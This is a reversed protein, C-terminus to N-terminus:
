YFDWSSLQEFDMSFLWDLSFWSSLLFLIVWSFFFSRRIHSSNLHSKKLRYTSHPSLNTTSDYFIVSVLFYNQVVAVSCAVWCYLFNFLLHLSLVSHLKATFLLWMVYLCQNFYFFVVSAPSTLCASTMYRFTHSLSFLIMERLLFPIVDLFLHLFRLFRLMNDVFM